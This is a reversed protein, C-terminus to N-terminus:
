TDGGGPGYAFSFGIWVFGSPNWSLLTTFDRIWWRHDWEFGTDLIWFLCVCVCVFLSWDREVEDWEMFSKVDEDDSGLMQITFRVWRQLYVSKFRTKEKVNSNLQGVEYPQKSPKIPPRVGYSNVRLPPVWRNDSETEIRVSCGFLLLFLKSEGCREREREILDRKSIIPRGYLLWLGFGKSITPNLGWLMLM